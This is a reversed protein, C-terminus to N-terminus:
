LNWIYWNEGNECYSLSVNQRFSMAFCESVAVWGIAHSSLSICWVFVECIAIKSRPRGQQLNRWLKGSYMLRSPFECNGSNGGLFFFFFSSGLDTAVRKSDWMSVTQWETATRIRSVSLLASPRLRACLWAPFPFSGVLCVNNAGNYDSRHSIPWSTLSNPLLTHTHTTKRKRKRGRHEQYVHLRVIFSRNECITQGRRQGYVRLGCMRHKESTQQAQPWLDYNDARKWFKWVTQEQATAKTKRKQRTTASLNNCGGYHTITSPPNLRSQFFKEFKRHLRGCIIHIIKLMRWCANMANFFNVCFQSCTKM